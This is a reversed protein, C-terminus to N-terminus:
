LRDKVLEDIDIIEEGNESIYEDDNEYYLPDKWKVLVCNNEWDWNAYVYDGKYTEEFYQIIMEQIPKLWKSM